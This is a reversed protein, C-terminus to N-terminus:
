SVWPNRLERLSGRRGKRASAIAKALADATGDDLTRYLDGLVELANQAPPEPVLRAVAKQNRILIVDEQEAEVKDIIASFNRAVETVTLKKM